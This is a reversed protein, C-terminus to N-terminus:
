FETTIEVIHVNKEENDLVKYQIEVQFEDPFSVDIYQYEDKDEKNDTDEIVGMSLAMPDKTFYLEYLCEEVHLLEERTFNVVNSLDNFEFIFKNFFKDWREFIEDRKCEEKKHVEEKKENYTKILNNKEIKAQEFESSIKEINKQMSAIQKINDKILENKYTCEINIDSIKNNIDITDFKVKRFEEMLSDLKKLVANEIQEKLEKLKDEQLKKVKELKIKLEELNIIDEETQSKNKISNNLLRSKEKLSKEISNIKEKCLKIKNKLELLGKQSKKLDEEQKIIEVEKENEMFSPLIEEKPTFRGGYGKVSLWVLRVFLQRDVNRWANLLTLNEIDVSQEFDTKKEEGINRLTEEVIETAEKLDIFQQEKLYEKAKGELKECHKLYINDAKQSPTSSKYLKYLKAAEEIVEISIEDETPDEIHNKFKELLFM